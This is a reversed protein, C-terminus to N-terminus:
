IIGTRVDTDGLAAVRGDDTEFTEVIPYLRYEDGLEGFLCKITRFRDRAIAHPSPYKVNTAALPTVQLLPLLCM